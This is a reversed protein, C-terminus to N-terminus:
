KLNRPDWLVIKEGDFQHMGVLRMTQVAELMGLGAKEYEAVTAEWCELETKCNALIKPAKAKGIGKVGKINDVPDGVMAQIYPWKMATDEDVEVWKMDINYLASEYYNFHTGALSYILDKDVACLIYKEPELNKKYVVIDDAEWETSITHEFNDCLMKKLDSLGTPARGTRNAKYQPDVTYRFNDRGGTFHLEATRCGTKDFIKQLKDMATQYAQDLNITWICANDADYNPDSHIAELEDQSYFEDALLAEQQEANLCSTYALTDADILAIKDNAQALVKGDRDLDIEIFEEM